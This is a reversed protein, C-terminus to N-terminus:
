RFVRVTEFGDRALDRWRLGRAKVSQRLLRVMGLKPDPNTVTFVQEAVDCLLQPYQRQM